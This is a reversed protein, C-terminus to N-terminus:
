PHEISARHRRPHKGDCAQRRCPQAVFPRYVLRWRGRAAPACRDMVSSSAGSAHEEVALLQEDGADQGVVADGEGCGLDRLLLAGLDQERVDALAHPQGLLDGALQGRLGVHHLHVDVVGIVDARDRRRDHVSPSAQVARQM